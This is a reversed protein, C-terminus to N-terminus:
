DPFDDYRKRKGGRMILIVALVLLIGGAIAEMTKGNSHLLYLGTGAIALVLAAFWGNTLIRILM